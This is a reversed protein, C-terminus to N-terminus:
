LYDHLSINIVYNNNKNHYEEFVKNRQKLKNKLYESMWPPDKDTFSIFKNAHFKSFVDM